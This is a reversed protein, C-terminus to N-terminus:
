DFPNQLSPNSFYSTDILTKLFAIVEIQEQESLQIPRMDPDLNDETFGGSSYHSIVQNLDTFRGDHMYPASFVINRLSPVKFKGNDFPIGNIKGRGLDPFLSLDNGLVSDLGNNKYSLDTFLPASHCHACEGDVIDDNFDFFIEFGNEEDDTFAYEENIFRDFKADGGSIITREFQAIAKVTLDVSIESANDIGFAKRFRQKYDQHNRLKMEVGPISHDFEVDSLIPQLAQDELTASRGDWFFGNDMFVVNLLSMSSRPGVRGDVGPSLALNDAFASRLGHCSACSITSDRSLIPDYFLRRGLEVGEVTMPNDAPINLPLRKFAAPIDLNYTVPNYPTGTLDDDSPM